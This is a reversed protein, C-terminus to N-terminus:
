ADNDIVAVSVAGTHEQQTGADTQVVAREVPLTAHQEVVIGGALDTGTATHFFRNRTSSAHVSMSAAVRSAM